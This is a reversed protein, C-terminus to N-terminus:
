KDSGGIPVMAHQQAGGVDGRGFWAELHCCPERCRYGDVAGFELTGRPAGQEVMGGRCLQEAPLRAVCPRSAAFIRRRRVRRRSGGTRSSDAPAAFGAGSDAGACGARWVYLCRSVRSNIVEFPLFKSRPYLTFRGRTGETQRALDSSLPRRHPAGVRQLRARSQSRSRYLIRPVTPRTVRVSRSPATGSVRTAALLWMSLSASWGGRRRHRAWLAGARCPAASRRGPAFWDGTM